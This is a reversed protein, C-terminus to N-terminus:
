GKVQRTIFKFASLAAIAGESAATVVQNFENSGDTIDGAALIGPVSTEMGANVKIRGEDNILISLEKAMASVPVGGIEIFVGDVDLTKGNDLKVKKVFKDGMIETVNANYIFETKNNCELCSVRAPEARIRDKRYIVYVKKAHECLVQASMAAADNGGVVAVIKDNFFAADCTACYSVGKGLFEKEGPVGLERHKTGMALILASSSFEDKETSVIFSGKNNRIRKVSESIIPVKFSEVHEKWKQMLEMGTGKFGPWNEIEHALNANGGVDYGLVLTDLKYRAAYIAATLGAPGAGVIILDHSKKSMELV